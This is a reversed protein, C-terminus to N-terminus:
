GIRGRGECKLCQAWFHRVQIPPLEKGDRWMTVGTYERVPVRGQGKCVPCVLFTKFKEPPHTNKSM